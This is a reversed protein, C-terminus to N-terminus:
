ATPNAGSAVVLADRPGATLHTYLTAIAADTRGAFLLEFFAIHNVERESLGTAADKAAAVAARAAAVNGERM